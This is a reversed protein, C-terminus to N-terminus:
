EPDSSPILDLQWEQSDLLSPYPNPSYGVLIIRDTELTDKELAIRIKQLFLDADEYSKRVNGYRMILVKKPIPQNHFHDRLQEMRLIEDAPNRDKHNNEDYEIILVHDASERYFDPRRIQGSPTRISANHIFPYEPFLLQLTKKFIYEYRDETLNLRTCIAQISIEQGFLIEFWDIKRNYEEFQTQTQDLLTPNINYIFTGRPAKIMYKGGKPKITENCFDKLPMIACIDGFLVTNRKKHIPGWDRQDKGIELIDLITFIILMYETGHKYVFGIHKVTSDPKTNAPWTWRYPLVDTYMEYVFNNKSDDKGTIATIVFRIMDYETLEKKKKEITKIKVPTKAPLQKTQIVVPTKKRINNHVTLMRRQISIGQM